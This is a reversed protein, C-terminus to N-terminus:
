GPKTRRSFGQASRRCVGMNRLAFSPEKRNGRIKADTSHLHRSQRFSEKASCSRRQTASVEIPGDSAFPLPVEFDGQKGTKATEKWPGHPSHGSVTVDANRVALSGDQQSVTGMLHGRLDGAVFISVKTYEAVAKAM